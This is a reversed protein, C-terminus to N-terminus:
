GECSLEESVQKMFYALAPRGGNAVGMHNENLYRRIEEASPNATLLETYCLYDLAITRKLSNFPRIGLDCM